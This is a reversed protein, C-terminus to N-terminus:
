MPSDNLGGQSPYTVIEYIAPLERCHEDLDLGYGVLFGGNCVFGRFDVSVDVRRCGKKDILACVKLSKPAKKGLRRILYSLSLGTDVIDEVLIINKGAIDTGSDVILEVEGTTETGSYSSLRVFDLIMPLTIRRALDAAFYFAGKLVVVLVIEEGAYDVSIEEALRRVEALIQEESYLLRLGTERCKEM